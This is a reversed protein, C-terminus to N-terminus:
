KLCEPNQTARVPCTRRENHLACGYVPTQRVITKQGALLSAVADAGENDGVHGRGATIGGSFLLKGGSNYLVVFGSTQAGFRASLEGGADKHVTIGPIAAVNGWLGTSAWEEDDPRSALFVVHVFVQSRNNALIRNLEELAARTCPCKPHAFLVLTARAQDLSLETGEPWRVPTEGARGSASQYNLLMVTGAVATVLWVVVLLMRM